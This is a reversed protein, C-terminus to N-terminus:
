APDNGLEADITPFAELTFADPFAFTIWNVPDPVKFKVPLKVPSADDAPVLLEVRSTLPEPTKFKLPFVVPPLPLVVAPAPICMDLEVAVIFTLPFQKPPVPIAGPTLFAPAAVTLMLPMAAPDGAVPVPAPTNFEDV